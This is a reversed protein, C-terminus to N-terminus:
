AQSEFYRVDGHPFMTDEVVQKAEGYVISQDSRRSDPKQQDVITFAFNVKFPSAVKAVCNLSIKPIKHGSSPELSM